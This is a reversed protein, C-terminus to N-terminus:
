VFTPQRRPTIHPPRDYVPVAFSADGKWPEAWPDTGYLDRLEKRKPNEMGKVPISRAFAIGNALTVAIRTSTFSGPGTVVGVGDIEKWSTGETDLFEEVRALVEEPRTTFRRGSKWGDAGVLGVELSHIDQACLLLRM